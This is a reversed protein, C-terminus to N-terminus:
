GRIYWLGISRCIASSHTLEPIGGGRRLNVGSAQILERVKPLIDWGRWYSQYNPDNTVRAMAIVLAHTLCNEEARVEVIRRNPHAMVSLSGGKSKQVKGFGAPM